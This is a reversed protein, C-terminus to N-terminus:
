SLVVTRLHIFYLERDYYLLCSTSKYVQKSVQNKTRDCKAKEEEEKPLSYHVDIKRDKLFVNQM